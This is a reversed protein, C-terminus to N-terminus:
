GDSQLCGICENPLTLHALLNILTLVLALMITSHKCSLYGDTKHVTFSSDSTSNVHGSFQRESEYAPLDLTPPHRSSWYVEQSVEHHVNFM